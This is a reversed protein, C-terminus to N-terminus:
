QPLSALLAKYDVIDQYMLTDINERLTKVYNDCFNSVANVIFKLEKKPQRFPVKVSKMYLYKEERIETNPKRYICGGGNGGFVQTRLTLDDDVCLSVVQPMQGRVQHILKTSCSIWIQVYEGGLCGKQASVGFPLKDGFKATLIANIQNAIATMSQTSAVTTTM